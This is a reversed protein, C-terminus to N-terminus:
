STERGTRALAPGTLRYTTWGRMGVAGLKEYFAISPANWDLVSWEMRAYGNRVALQALNALLAKGLGSGRHGPQVYLDELYVGHVGEWTSYNLFHLTYGVVTGDVEAVFGFVAPSPAFLAERLLDATLHCEEVLKEYEALEYVLAVVAELDGPRTPRIRQDPMGPEAADDPM